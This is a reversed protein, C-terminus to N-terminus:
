STSRGTLRAVSDSLHWMVQSSKTPNQAIENVIAALEQRDPNSRKLDRLADPTTAARRATQIRMQLENMVSAITLPPLLSVELARQEADTM